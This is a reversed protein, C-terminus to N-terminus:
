GYGSCSFCKILANGGRRSNALAFDENQSLLAVVNEPDLDSLALHQPYDVSPLLKPIFLAAVALAVGAAYAHGESLRFRPKAAASETTPEGSM